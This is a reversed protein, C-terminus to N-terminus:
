TSGQEEEILERLNGVIEPGLRARLSRALSGKRLAAEVCAGKRHVYAGRGPASGTPDVRADGASSRVVRVLAPKPAAVRCGVCTREPGGGGPV